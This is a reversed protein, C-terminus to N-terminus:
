HHENTEGRLFEALAKEGDGVATQLESIRNMFLYWQDINDPLYRHISETMRVPDPCNYIYKSMHKAYLELAHILSTIPTPIEEFVLCAIAELHYSRFSETNRTLNWYKICRVAAIVNGSHRKNIMELAGREKLPSIRKWLLESKEEPILYGDLFPIAPTLRLEISEGKLTIHVSQGSSSLKANMHKSLVTELAKMLLVPQVLNTPNKITRLFPDVNVSAVTLDTENTQVSTPDIVMLVNVHTIPALASERFYSGFVQLSNAALKPLQQQGVLLQIQKEISTIAKQVKKRDADSPTLEDLLSILPSQFPKLLFFAM